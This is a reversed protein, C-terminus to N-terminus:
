LSFQNLSNEAQTPVTVFLNPVTIRTVRMSCENTPLGSTENITFFMYKRKSFFNFRQNNELCYDKKM